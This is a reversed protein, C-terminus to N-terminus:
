APVPLRLVVQLGGGSGLSFDVKGDIASIRALINKMGMGNKSGSPNFGHGNDEFTYLIGSDTKMIQLEAKNAGSHKITNQILEQSVRFLATEINDPLREKLGLENFSITLGEAPLSRRILEELAIALGHEKLTVPAMQHSITRVESCAEQLLGVPHEIGTDDHSIKGKLNELSLATASLLQGVGDHLERAIRTREIEQTEIMVRLNDRENQLQQEKLKRKSKQIIFLRWLYFVIILLLVGSGLGAILFNRKQLRAEQETIRLEDIEMKRSALELAQEKERTEYKVQLDNIQSLNDINLLSDSYRHYEKQWHLAQKFDGLMEYASALNESAARIRELSGTRVSIEIARKSYEVAKRYDKLDIYVSALNNLSMAMGVENESKERMSYAMMHYKAAEPLRNTNRCIIGMDSYTNARDYNYQPGDRKELTDLFFFSTDLYKEALSYNKMNMQLNGLNMYSKAIGVLGIRAYGQNDFTTVERFSNLAFVFHNEAKSYDKLIKEVIGLNICNTAYALFGFQRIVPESHRSFRSFLEMSKYYCFVARSYMGRNELTNGLNHWGNGLGKWGPFNKLNLTTDKGILVTFVAIAERQAEEAEKLRGHESHISGIYNFAIGQYRMLFSTIQPNSETQFSSRTIEIIKGFLYLSTDPHTYEVMAGAQAMLKVRQTDTEAKAALNLLSDLGGARLFTCTFVFIVLLFFRKIKM